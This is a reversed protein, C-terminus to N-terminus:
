AGESTDVYTYRSTIVTVFWTVESGDDPRVADDVEGELTVSRVSVKDHQGKAALLRARLTEVVSEVVDTDDGWVEHTFTASRLGRTEQLTRQAPDDARKSVIYPFPSRAPAAHPYLGPSEATGLIGAVSGEGTLAGDGRVWDYLVSRIGTM